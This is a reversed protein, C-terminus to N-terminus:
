PARFCALISNQPSRQPPSPSGNEQFPIGVVNGRSPSGVSWALRRGFWGSLPHDVYRQVFKHAPWRRQSALLSEIRLREAVAASRIAAWASKTEEVEDAYEAAFDDSTSWSLTAGTRDDLQISAAGDGLTSHRLGNHDLGYDPTSEELLDTVTLHREAAVPDLVDGIRKLVTRNNITQMFESLVAISAPDAIRGLAYICAFPVKEGQVTVHRVSRGRSENLCRLAVRRLTPPGWQEDLLAAAWVIGRALDDNAYLLLPLVTGHLNREIPPATALLDLLSHVLSGPKDVGPVLTWFRREWAPTPKATSATALFILFESIGAPWPDGDGLFSVIAAGFGDSAEVPKVVTDSPVEQGSLEAARERLAQLRMVDKNDLGSPRWQLVRAAVEDIVSVAGTVEMARLVQARDLIMGLYTLRDHPVRSLRVSDVALLLRLDALGFAVKAEAIGHFYSTQLTHGPNGLYRDPHVLDEGRAFSAALSMGVSTRLPDPLEALEERIIKIWRRRSPWRVEQKAIEDARYAVTGGLQAATEAGVELHHVYLAALDDALDEM